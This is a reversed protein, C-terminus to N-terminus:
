RGGTSGGASSDEGSESEEKDKSSLGIGLGAGLAVAVVVLVAIGILFRKRKWWPKPPVPQISQYLENAAEKDKGPVEEAGGAVWEPPDAPPVVEPFDAYQNTQPQYQPPYSQESQNPPLQYSAM